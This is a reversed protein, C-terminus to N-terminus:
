LYLRLDNEFRHLIKFDHNLLQGFGPWLMKMQNRIACMKELYYAYTIQLM